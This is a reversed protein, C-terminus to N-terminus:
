EQTKGSKHKEFVMTKSTIRTSKWIKNEFVSARIESETSKLSSFLDALRVDNQDAFSSASLLLFFILSLIWNKKFTHVRKM